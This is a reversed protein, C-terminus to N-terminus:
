KPQTVAGNDVVFVGVNDPTEAPHEGVITALITSNNKKAKDVFQFISKGLSEGRDILELGFGDPYQKSLDSSLIILQSTSLMDAATNEYIFEGQENFELGDIGSSASVGELRSAKEAKLTRQRRTISTLKTEHRQKSESQEVNTLYIGYRIADARASSIKEELDETPLYEPEKPAHLIERVPNEELWKEASAAKAAVESKLQNITSVLNKRRQNIDLIEQNLDWIGDVNLVHAKKIDSNTRKKIKLARNLEDLDSKEVLTLDLEGYSKIVIRLDRADAELKSYEKDEKSTDIDFFDTFFKKREIDNMNILHNQDLLFPNLFQKLADVPRKALDGNILVVLPRSKIPGDAPKYFERRISANDFKLHVFAETEGHHIIDKSFSGGFCLKIANLITTKGQKIDGYFLNLPENFEIKTAAIKGINSIELSLIKM